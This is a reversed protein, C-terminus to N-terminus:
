LRGLSNLSAANLRQRAEIMERRVRMMLHGANVSFAKIETEGGRLRDYPTEGEEFRMFEGTKVANINRTPVGYGRANQNGRPAGHSRAFTNGSAFRGDKLRGNSAM